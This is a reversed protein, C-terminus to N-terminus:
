DCLFYNFKADLDKFARSAHASTIRVQSHVEYLLCPFSASVLDYHGLLVYRWMCFRTWLMPCATYVGISEYAMFSTRCHLLDHPFVLAFIKASVFLDGICCHDLHVERRRAANRREFSNCEPLYLYWPQTCNLLLLLMSYHQYKTITDVTAPIFYSTLCKLKFAVTEM